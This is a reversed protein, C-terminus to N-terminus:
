TAYGNPSRSRQKEDKNEDGHLLKTILEEVLGIGKIVGVHTGYEYSDKASPKQLAELAYTKSLEKIKLILQQENIGAM